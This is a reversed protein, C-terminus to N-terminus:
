QIWGMNNNTRTKLVEEEMARCILIDDDTFSVIRSDNPLEKFLFDNYAREM